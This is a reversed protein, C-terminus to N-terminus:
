VNFEDEMLLTGTMLATYLCQAEILDAQTPQEEMEEPEGNFLATGTFFCEFTDRKIPYRGRDPNCIIVEGKENLGCLVCWHFHKWHIIAPRDMRLLEEASISYAKIEIGHKEAAKKIGAGSCGAITTECEEYLDSMKADKGYYNLLMKLCTAGCDLEKPSTIPKVDFM